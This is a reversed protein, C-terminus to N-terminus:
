CEVEKYVKLKGWGDRIHKAMQALAIMYKRHLPTRLLDNAEVNPDEDLKYNESLMYLIFRNVCPENGREDTCIADLMSKSCLCNGAEKETDCWLLVKDLIDKRVTMLRIKEATEPNEENKDVVKVSGDEFKKYKPTKTLVAIFETEKRHIWHDFNAIRELKDEPFIRPNDRIEWYVQKWDKRNFKMIISGDCYDLKKWAESIIDAIGPLGSFLQKINDEMQNEVYLRGDRIDLTTISIRSERELKLLKEKHTKRVKKVGKVTFWSTLFWTAMIEWTEAMFLRWWKLYINQDVLDKVQDVLNQIEPNVQVIVTAAWVALLIWAKVKKEM